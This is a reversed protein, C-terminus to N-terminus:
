TPIERIEALYVPHGLKERLVKGAYEIFLYSFSMVYVHARFHKMSFNYCFYSIVPKKSSVMYSYITSDCYSEM